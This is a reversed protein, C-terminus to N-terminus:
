PNVDGGSTDACNIQIVKGPQLRSGGLSIMSYAQWPHGSLDNRQSIITTMDKWVGLYLGDEVWMICNRLTNSSSTQLRESYHLQCGMFTKVRGNQDYTPVSRYETSVFEVQKLLDAEQQSGIALHVTMAELDNEYHRLIRKGEIIKAVTMGVSTAGAGFTDAVLYANSTGNLNSSSFTETSSSGLDVGIIASGFAANIIVDDKLRNAAAIISASLASKPDNITRLEDFEDVQVPLEKDIPTVWRRQYQATQPVLPAGRGQATKFELASVYQIPSAGKGVHAGTMVSGALRTDNQQLLLDLRTNYQQTLLEVEFPNPTTM